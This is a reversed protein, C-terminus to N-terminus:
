AGEKAQSQLEKAKRRLDAARQIIASRVLGGIGLRKLIANCREAEVAQAELVLGHVKAPCIDLYRRPNDEMGCVQCTLAKSKRPSEPGQQWDHGFDKEGAERAQEIDPDVQEKATM